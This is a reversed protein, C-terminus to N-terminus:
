VHNWPARNERARLKNAEADGIFEEKEPNWKLPRRLWYGINGLQCVQATRAGFEVDAVPRQRSKICDLWHQSRFLM